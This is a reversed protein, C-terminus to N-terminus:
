ASWALSDSNSLTPITYGHLLWRVLCWGPLNIKTNTNLTNIWDVARKRSEDSIFIMKQKSKSCWSTSKQNGFITTSKKLSKNRQEIVIHAQWSALEPPGIYRIVLPSFWDHNWALTVYPIACTCCGMHTFACTEGPYLYRVFVWVGITFCETCLRLVLSWILCIPTPSISYESVELQLLYPHKSQLAIAKWDKLKFLQLSIKRSKEILDM